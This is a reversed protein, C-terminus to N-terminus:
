TARFRLHLENLARFVYTPQYSFKRDGNFGHHDSDIRIDDMRALMQELSIRTEARALAAGPCTHIGRGFALHDKAGKRGLSFEAPEDFKRPDRNVAATTIMVVTGPRIDVGGLSTPKRALRFTSKVPGSIRLVEEIFSPILKPDTRLDDQLQGQEAIIRLCNGLLTATTDQGAGFLLVAVRAIDMPTPVSGDPFTAHSLDGLIDDQPTARRDGVYGLFKDRRFDMPNVVNEGGGGIHSSSQTEALIARFDDRDKAPVGLLEAIALTAFPKAYASIVECRGASEFEDILESAIRTIGVEMAKLRSPTFLRMMLARLPTHRPQDLTLIEEGFPMQPRYEEIQATIDDGAPVFPLPPLPGTVSVVASYTDSDLHVALAEEFGTVAVTNHVPLRRVAGGSRLYEFYPYPDDVLSQDMFFDSNEYNNM